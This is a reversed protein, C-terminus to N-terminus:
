SRTSSCSRGLEVMAPNQEPMAGIPVVGWGGISARLQADLTPEVPPDPPTVESDCGALGALGVMLVFRIRTM